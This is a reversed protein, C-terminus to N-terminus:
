VFILGFGFFIRTRVLKTMRVDAQTIIESIAEKTGYDRLLFLDAGLFTYYLRSIGFKSQDSKHSVILQTFPGPVRKEFTGFVKRARFAM